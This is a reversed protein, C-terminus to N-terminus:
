ILKKLVDILEASVYIEGANLRKQFAAKDMTKTKGSGLDTVKLNDGISLVHLLETTGDGKPIRYTKNKEILRDM